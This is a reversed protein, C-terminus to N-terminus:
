TRKLPPQGPFAGFLAEHLSVCFSYQDARADHGDGALQEPAVYGPTGRVQESPGRESALTALGFDTVRVRGDDGVLINSPKVDGHVIGAAHAAALGEGAELFVDVVERWRRPAAALWQRVSQGVVLEMAVFLQDAEVVDYVPVVNPHALQAMLQAERLLQARDGGRRRVAKLAVRRDLRADLAAYVIGMGGAELPEVLEYPGVRTGRRLLAETGAGTPVTPESSRLEPSAATSAITSILVRCSECTDIHHEVSSAEDVSLARSAYSAATDPDICGDTM